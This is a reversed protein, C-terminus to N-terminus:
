RSLLALFPNTITALPRGPCLIILAVGEGPEGGKARDWWVGLGHWVGEQLRVRALSPPQLLRAAGNSGGGAASARCKMIAPGGSTQQAM